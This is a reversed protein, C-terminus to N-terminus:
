KPNFFENFIFRLEDGTFAGGNTAYPTFTKIMEDGSEFSLLPSFLFIHYPTSVADFSIVIDVTEGAKIPYAQFDSTSLEVNNVKLTYSFDEFRGLDVDTLYITESDQNEYSVDYRNLGMGITGGLHGKLMLPPADGGSYKATHIATSDILHIKISGINFSYEQSSTIIQISNLEVLSQEVGSVDLDIYYYFYRLGKAADGKDIDSLPIEEVAIFKAVYDGSGHFKVSTVQAADCVRHIAEDNESSIIPLSLGVESAASVDLYFDGLVPLFYPGAAEEFDTRNTKPILILSIIVVVILLTCISVIKINKKM